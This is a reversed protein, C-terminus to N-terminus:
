MADFWGDICRERYDNETIAWTLTEFSYVSQPIPM